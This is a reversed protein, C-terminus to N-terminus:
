FQRVKNLAKTDNNLMAAGAGDDLKTAGHTIQTAGFNLMTSNANLLILRM